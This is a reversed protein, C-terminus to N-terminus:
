ATPKRVDFEARIRNGEEEIRAAPAGEARLLLESLGVAAEAEEYCVASVGLEELRKKQAVYHARVLITLEPNLRRAEQIVPIGPELDPLTLILYKAKDVGAAKLVEAKAADGYYAPVGEAALRTVTDVNLDIVVPDIEFGQLLRTVTQGVPGHGVVVARTRTER